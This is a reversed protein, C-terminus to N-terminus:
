KSEQEPLTIYRYHTITKWEITDVLSKIEGWKVGALRQQKKDPKTETMIDVEDTEKPLGESVRKWELADFKAKLERIPGVLDCLSAQKAPNGDTIIADIERCLQQKDEYSEKYDDLKAQLQEIHEELPKTYSDLRTQILEAIELVIRTEM